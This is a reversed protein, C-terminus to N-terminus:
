YENRREGENAQLFLGTSSVRIVTDQEVDTRWGKLNQLLDIDSCCEPNKENSNSKPFLWYGIVAISTLLYYM